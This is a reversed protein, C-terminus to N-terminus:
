LVKYFKHSGYKGLKNTSSYLKIFVFLTEFSNSMVNLLFKESVKGRPETETGWGGSNRFKVTECDHLQAFNEQNQVSDQSKCACDLSSPTPGTSLLGEM